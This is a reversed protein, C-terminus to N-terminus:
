NEYRKMVYRALRGDYPRQKSDDPVLAEIVPKLAPDFPGTESNTSYHTM